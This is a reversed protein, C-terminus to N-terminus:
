VKGETGAEVQGELEDLLGELAVETGEQSESEEEESVEESEGEESEADEEEDDDDDEEDSDPLMAEIPPWPAFPDELEGGDLQRELKILETHTCLCADLSARLAAEDLDMGIFVVEQKRCM